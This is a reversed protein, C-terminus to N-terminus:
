VSASDINVEMEGSGGGGSGNGGEASNAARNERPLTHTQKIIHLSM